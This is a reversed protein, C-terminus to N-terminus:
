PKRQDSENEASIIWADKIYVHIYVRLRKCGTSETSVCVPHNKVEVKTKFTVDSQHRWYNPTLIHANSERTTCLYSPRTKRLVPRFKDCILNQDGKLDQWVSVRLHESRM